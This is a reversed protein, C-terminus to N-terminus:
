IQEATVLLRIHADAWRDRLDRGGARIETALAAVAAGSSLGAQRLGVAAREARQPWGPPLQRHGRHVLEATLELAGTVEAALRDAVVGATTAIPESSADAFAPVIM